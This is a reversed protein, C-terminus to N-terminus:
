GPLLAEAYTPYGGDSAPPHHANGASVVAGLHDFKSAATLSFAL